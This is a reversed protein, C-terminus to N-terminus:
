DKYQELLKKIEAPSNQELIYKPVVYLNGFDPGEIVLLRLAIVGSDLELIRLLSYTNGSIDFTSFPTVEQGGITTSIIYDTQEKM